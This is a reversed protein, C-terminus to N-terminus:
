TVETALDSMRAYWYFIKNASATANLNIKFTTSNIESLYYVYGSINSAATIVISAPIGHILHTINIFTNGTTVTASAYYETFKCRYFPSGSLLNKAIVTGAVILPYATYDSKGVFPVTLTPTTQPDYVLTDRVVIMGANGTTTIMVAQSSVTEITLDRLTINSATAGTFKIGTSSSKLQSIFGTVLINKPTGDFLALPQASGVALNYLEIDFISNDSAYAGTGSFFNIYTAAGAANYIHLKSTFVQGYVTFIGYSTSNESRCNDLYTRGTTKNGDVHFGGESGIDRCNEMYIHANGQNKVSYGIHENYQSLCDKLIMGEKVMFGNGYNATPGKDIGNYKSICNEIVMNRISGAWELHFGSEWNREARCNSILIDELLAPTECLDFGVVWTNYRLAKGCNYAVCNILSINRGTGSAGLEYGICYSDVVECNRITIDSIIEGVSGTDVYFNVACNMYASSVSSKINEVLCNRAPAKIHIAAPPAANGTIQFDGIDCDNSILRISIGDFITGQGVGRFSVNDYSIYITDGDAGSGVFLGSSIRISASNGSHNLASEVVSKISSDSYDIAGTTGNRAKYNSGDKFIVYDASGVMSGPEIVTGFGTPGSAGLLYGFSGCIMCLAVVLVGAYKLGKFKSEANRKEVRFRKIAGNMGSM